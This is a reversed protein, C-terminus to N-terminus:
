PSDQSAKGTQSQNAGLGSATGNKPRRFGAAIWRIAWILAYLSIWALLPPFLATLLASLPMFVYSEATGPVYKACVSQVPQAQQFLNPDGKGPNIESQASSDLFEEASAKHQVARPLMKYASCYGAVAASTEVFPKGPRPDIFSIIALSLVYIFWIATGVVGIRQWGNLRNIM